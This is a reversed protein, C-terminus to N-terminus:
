RNSRDVDSRDLITNMDKIEGNAGKINVGVAALASSYKNLDIIEGYEFVDDKKLSINLGQKGGFYKDNAGYTITSKKSYYTPKYVYFTDTEEEPFGDFMARYTVTYQGIEELTLKNSEYTLGSPSTVIIKANKTVTGKTITKEPIELFTKYCYEDKLEETQQEAKAFNSIAVTSASVLALGILGVLLSKRKM